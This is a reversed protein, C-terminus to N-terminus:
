SDLDEGIIDGMLPGDGSTFLKYVYALVAGAIVTWQVAPTQAASVMMDWM